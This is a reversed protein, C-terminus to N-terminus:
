SSAAWCDLVEPAPQKLCPMVLVGALLGLARAALLVSPARVFPHYRLLNKESSRTHRGAGCVLRM